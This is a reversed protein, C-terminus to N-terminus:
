KADKKKLVIKKKKNRLKGVEVWAYGEWDFPCEFVRHLSESYAKCMKKDWNSWSKVKYYRYPGDETRNLPLVLKDSCKRNHNWSAEIIYSDVPIDLHCKINAFADGMKTIENSVGIEKARNSIVVLYKIILNVVKQSNGYTWGIRNQKPELCSCKEILKDCLHEHWEKYNEQTLKSPASYFAERLTNAIECKLTGIFHKRSQDTLRTILSGQSTAAGISNAIIYDFSPNRIVDDTLNVKKAKRFATEYKKPNDPFLCGPLNSYDGHKEKNNMKSEKENKASFREKKTLEITSLSLTM